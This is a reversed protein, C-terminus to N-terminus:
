RHRSWALALPALALDALPLVLFGGLAVWIWIDSKDIASCVLGAYGAVFLGCLLWGGIIWGVVRTTIANRRVGWAFAAMSVAIKATLCAILIAPLWHLLAARFNLNTRVFDLLPFLGALLALRCYVSVGVIWPRGTLGAGIGAVLNKWTWIVLLLWVPLCGTTFALPGYPTVLGANSFLTGKNMLALWLFAAATVVWTLASTALAMVVKAMVFGGNTMPRIAIYVPLESTAHLSDFKVVAVALVMSIVLPM